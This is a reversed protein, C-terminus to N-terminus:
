YKVKVSDQFAKVFRDKLSEETEITEGNNNSIQVDEEVVQDLSESVVDATEEESQVEASAESKEALRKEVEEQIKAEMEEALKQLYEKNKNKYVVSIKEQYAAFSEETEDLELLESAVIKLDDEDFDYSDELSSMRADFRATAERELKEEELSKLKSEADSLKQELESLTNEIEEKATQAEAKDVNAQELEKVYEESKERIADHFVKTISAIAEDSFDKAAAKESLLQEIDKLLQEKEMIKSFFQEEKQIVADENMQSSKEQLTKSKKFRETETNEVIVGKVDAAPNNTFGIGLPFIEGVILRNVPLGKENKGEGGFSKLYKSLSEIEKPDSVVQADEGEGVSINYENFGVEWSASVSQYNESEPDSSDVIVNAFDPAVTKYVVAGLAINFPKKYDESITKFQNNSGYESFGASVVHGVINNKQHEINCPKHMFNACISVASDTAIGDGNKNFTNVVAANFAVAVLDINKDLDISDPVMGRLPELSAESIESAWDADSAVVVDSAFTTKYKFNKV